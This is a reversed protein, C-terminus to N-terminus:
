AMTMVSIHCFKQGVAWRKTLIYFHGHYSLPLFTFLGGLILRRTIRSAETASRHGCSCSSLEWPHNQAGRHQALRPQASSPEPCAPPKSHRAEQAKEQTKLLCGPRPPAQGCSSCQAAMKASPRLFATGVARDAIEFYKLGVLQKEIGWCLPFSSLFFRLRDNM